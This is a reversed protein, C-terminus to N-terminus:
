RPQAGVPDMPLLAASRQLRRTWLRRLLVSVVMLLLPTLQVIAAPSLGQELIERGIRVLWWFMVDFCYLIMLLSLVFFVALFGRFANKERRLWRKFERFANTRVNPAKFATSLIFYSDTMMLPQLNFIIIMLNALILKAILQSATSSQPLHSYLLQLVAGILLNSYLGASWLVIRHWPRITYVGPISVFVYPIFGLYLAATIKRPSLGYRLGALGHFCEHVVVLVLMSLWMTVYGAVYSGFLVQRSPAALGRLDLRAFGYLSLLLGLLVALPSFIAQLPRLRVFLSELGFSFLQLSHRLIESRPATPLATKILGADRLKLFLELVEAKKGLESAIRKEIWLFDHTGDLYQIIRMTIEIKAEPVTLYQDVSISGVAYLNGEPREFLVWRDIDDVVQHRIPERRGLEEPAPRVVSQTSSAQILTTM